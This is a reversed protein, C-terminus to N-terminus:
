HGWADLEEDPLPEFFREDFKIKGALAGPRRPGQDIPVLRALPKGHRAIVIEEGAAAADLLRSLRAKADAVSVTAM